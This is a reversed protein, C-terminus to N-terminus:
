SVSGKDKQMVSLVVERAIRRVEEDSLYVLSATESAFIQVLDALTKSKERIEETEAETKETAEAACFAKLKELLLDANVQASNEAAESAPPQAICRRSLAALAETLYPRLTRLVPLLVTRRSEAVSLEFLLSAGLVFGAIYGGGTRRVGLGANLLSHLLSLTDNETKPPFMNRQLASVLAAFAKEAHYRDSSFGRRIGCSESEVAAAAIALAADKWDSGSCEAFMLPDLLILVPQLAACALHSVQPKRPLALTIESSVARTVADAGVPVAVIKLPPVASAAFSRSVGPRLNDNTFYLAAAKALGLATENGVAVIGDYVGRSLIRQLEYYADVSPIGGGAVTYIDEPKATKRIVSFTQAPLPDSCVFLPRATGSEKLLLPLSAFVGPYTELRPSCIPAAQMGSLRHLVSLPYDAPAPLVPLAPRGAELPACDASLDDFMKYYAAPLLLQQIGMLRLENETQKSLVNVEDAQEAMFLQLRFSRLDADKEWMSFLAQLEVASVTRVPLKTKKMWQLVSLPDADALHYVRSRKEKTLLAVCQAACVDVPLLSVSLKEMEPAYVGLKKLARLRSLLLSQGPHMQYVGDTKRWGLTGVRIIVTDLGKAAASVVAAEAQALSMLCANECFNQGILLTRESFDGGARLRTLVGKGSVRLDSILSFVANASGAFDCLNVTPKGNSGGYEDFAGFLDTKVAAHIVLSVEATLSALVSKTVGFGFLSAEGALPIVAESEWAGFYCRLAEKLREPDSVLCYVRFGASVLEKLLHAGLFGDAGTLLATRNEIPAASAHVANLLANVNENFQAKPLQEEHLQKSLDFLFPHEYVTQLHVHLSFALKQASFADGGLAFFDAYVSFERLSPLAARVALEVQKQEPTKPPSVPLQDAQSCLAATAEPSFSFGDAPIGAARLHRIVPSDGSFGACFLAELSGGFFAKLSDAPSTKGAQKEASRFAAKYVAPVHAAPLCVTQPSFRRLSAFFREPDPLVCVAGSCLPVLLSLLIGQVSRAPYLHMIRGAGMKEAMGQAAALLKGFPLFRPAAASDSVVAIGCSPDPKKATKEKQGSFVSQMEASAGKEDCAKLSAFTMRDAFPLTRFKETEDERDSILVVGNKQADETQLFHPLARGSALLLTRSSLFCACALTLFRLPDKTFSCVVQKSEPKLLSKSLSQAEKFFVSFPIEEVRDNKELLLFPDGSGSRLAFAALQEMTSFSFSRKM